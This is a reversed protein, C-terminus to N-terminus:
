TVSRGSISGIRHADSAAHLGMRAHAHPIGTYAGVMLVHQGKVAAVDFSITVKGSTELGAGYSSAQVFEVQMGAPVPHLARVLDAAM